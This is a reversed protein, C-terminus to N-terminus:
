DPEAPRLRPAAHVLLALDVLVLLLAGALRLLGLQALLGLLLRRLLRLGALRRLGLGLRGGRLALRVVLGRLALVHLGAVLALALARLHGALHSGPLLPRQRAGRSRPWAARRPKANM